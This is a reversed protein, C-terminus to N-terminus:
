HDKIFGGSQMQWMHYYLGKKEILTHHSGEEIIKGKDFVLIRDMKALTSLRHAIVLATKNKMLSDLSNQIYSETISDLASTAEDLILIPRNALIARAIAIRQREGGSLKSGKEGVETEYGKESREIFNKANAKQVANKIDELSAELFGYTLNEEFSRHFLQPDQPILAIQDRLSQLTVKSIDQGDILIKGEHIPFFRLILNVFTSKGAGSFGVLGVKEGPRIHVDKNKFLPDKGYQFCVNEFIIEGKEVKLNKANTADLIDTPDKLVVYAQKALGLSYFFPPISLVSTWIIICINWTMNFIQTAEGTTIYNELWFYLMCSNIILGGFIFTLFGLWTRMWELAKKSKVNLDYENKQEKILRTKEFNFRYFLNVIFNNSLSDVIKGMVKSREEGHAQEILDCPKLFIFCVSFHIVIWIFILFAFLPFIEYLSFIALICGVISPIFTLLIPQLLLSAQSTLDGIKNALSGALHKNFYRPSHRQIHDFM